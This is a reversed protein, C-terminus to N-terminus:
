KRALIDASTRFVTGPKAAPMSRGEGYGASWAVRQHATYGATAAACADRDLRSRGAQFGARRADREPTGEELRIAGSLVGRAWEDFEAQTQKMQEFM